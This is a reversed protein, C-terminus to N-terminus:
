VTTNHVRPTVVLCELTACAGVLGAVEMASADLGGGEIAGLLAGIIRRAESADDYSIPEQM